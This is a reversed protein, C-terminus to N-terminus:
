ESLPIEVAAIGATMPLHAYFWQSVCGMAVKTIRHSVFDFFYCQPGGGVASSNNGQRLNNILGGFHHRAKRTPLLTPLAGMAPSQGIIRSIALLLGRQLGTVTWGPHAAAATVDADIEAFRENLAVTFLLNALKSQAYAERANYGKEANLNEFDIRGSGMRHASSSVNVIRAGPTALITNLM